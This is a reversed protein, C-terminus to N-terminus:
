EEIMCVCLKIGNCFGSLKRGSLQAHILTHEFNHTNVGKGQGEAHYYYENAITLLTGLILSGKCEQVCVVKGIYMISNILHQSLNM